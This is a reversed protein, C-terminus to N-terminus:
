SLARVMFDRYLPIHGYRHAVKRVTVDLEEARLRNTDLTHKCGEVLSGYTMGFANEQASSELLFRLRSLRKDSSAYLCAAALFGPHAISLQHTRTGLDFEFSTPGLGEPLELGGLTGFFTDVLEFKEEPLDYVLHESYTVSEKVGAHCYRRDLKDILPRAKLEKILAGPVQKFIFDLDTVPIIRGKYQPHSMLKSAFGGVLQAHEYVPRQLLLMALLTIISEEGKVIATKEFLENVNM